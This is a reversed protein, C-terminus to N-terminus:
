LRHNPGAPLHNRAARAVAGRCGAKGSGVQEARLRRDARRWSGPPRGRAGGRGGPLRELFRDALDRPLAEGSCMVDRLSACSEELGPEQLFARLMSPVFHCVTVGQRQILGALYTPDQHGGPRALVLRAGTLLPWFFEWVSVDFSYPTKQLVRDQGTLGYQQQMWLLRNCIGRHTNQAGKPKGTSGSTYIVYALNEPTVASEPATENEQAVAAWDRDLCLVAASTEPLRGRLREQTLLVPPGADALMFALRDSPYDADLPVYAGGAKVVGLLAVVLELSRELCVGVLMDRGVGHSQLYRALQNARRDLEAYTLELGEFCIAIAEPTRQVQEKILRHLLHERAYTMKTANFDCIVQRREMETLLPVRSLSRDPESAIGELLTQWHAVLRAATSPEFLDTNYELTGKLADSGDVLFLSLDFKATGIDIEWPRLQLGRLEFAPLPVNQYVFLVQFLPSRGLDREPQIEEVLREFPLDQHAYADLATERVRGLLERFTPEGSLDGRLVLTNVFFGILGENEARHRNAIPTGVCLDEQGTYRHLLVYFAALLVMFPTCDEQGSLARLARTL